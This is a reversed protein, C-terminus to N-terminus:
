QSKDAPLLYSGSYQQDLHHEALCLVLNILESDTLVLRVELIWSLDSEFAGTQEWVMKHSHPNPISPVRLAIQSVLCNTRRYDQCTTSIILKVGRNGSIYFNIIYFNFIENQCYGIQDLHSQFKLFLISFFSGSM